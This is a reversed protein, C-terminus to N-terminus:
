DIDAFKEYNWFNYRMKEHTTFMKIHVESM